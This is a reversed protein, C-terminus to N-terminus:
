LTVAVAMSTAPVVLAAEEGSVITMSVWGGGAGTTVPMLGSVPVLLVVADGRRLVQGDGPRRLRAGQDGDHEVAHKQAVRHGPRVAGPAVVVGRHGEGVPVIGDRRLGVSMAPFTLGTEAGNLAVISVTLEGTM